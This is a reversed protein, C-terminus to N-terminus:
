YHQISQIFRRIATDYQHTMETHSFPKEGAFNEAQSVCNRQNFLGFTIYGHILCHWNLMVERVDYKGRTLEQFTSAVFEKAHSLEEAFVQRNIHMRDLSFMLQYLETNEFAFQWQHRSIAILRDAPDPYQAKIEGVNQRIARFSEAVIAQLLADKNQFYEYVIPPTYEIEDAIKRITVAQWGERAAINRAAQLMNARTEEKHRLKREAVGM